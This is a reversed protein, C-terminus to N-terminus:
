GIGANVRLLISPFKILVSADNAHSMIIDCYLAAFLVNKMRMFITFTSAAAPYEPSMYRFFLSLLSFFNLKKKRKKEDNEDESEEGSREYRSSIKSCSLCEHPFTVSQLTRLPSSFVEFEQFYENKFNFNEEDELLSGSLVLSNTHPIRLKKMMRMM